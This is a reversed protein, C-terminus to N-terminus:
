KSEKAFFATAKKLIEREMRLQKAERRLAVLEAREATTLAGPAGEGADIRAQKVWQRVASETLDLDRSVQGVTKGGDVILRVVEAKCEKSFKRRARKEM